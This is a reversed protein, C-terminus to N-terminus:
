HKKYNRFVDPDVGAVFRHPTKHHFPFRMMFYMSQVILSRRHQFEPTQLMLMNGNVVWNVISHGERTHEGSAFASEVSSLIRLM